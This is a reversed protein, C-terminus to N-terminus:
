TRHPRMSHTAPKTKDRHVVEDRLSYKSSFHSPFLLTTRGIVARDIVATSPREAHVASQPDPLETFCFCACELGGAGAISAARHVRM